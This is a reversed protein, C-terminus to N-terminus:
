VFNRRNRLIQFFFYFCFLILTNGVNMQKRATRVRFSSVQTTYFVPKYFRCTWIKILLGAHWNWYSTSQKNGSQKRALKNITFSKKVMSVRSEWSVWALRGHKDFFNNKAFFASFFHFWNSKPNFLKGHIQKNSCNKRKQM